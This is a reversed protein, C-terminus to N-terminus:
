EPNNGLIKIEKWLKKIKMKKKEFQKKKLKWKKKM